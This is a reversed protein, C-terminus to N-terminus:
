LKIESEVAKGNGTDYLVKFNEIDPAHAMGLFCKGNLRNFALTAKM